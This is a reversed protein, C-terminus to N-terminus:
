GIIHRDHKYETLVNWLLEWFGECFHGWYGYFCVWCPTRSIVGAPERYIVFGCLRLKM